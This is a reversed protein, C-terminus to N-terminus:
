FSVNVGLLVTRPEPYSGPNQEPGYGLVETATWLNTLTAYLRLSQMSLAKAVKKPFNYGIQVNRLRVFSADQYGVATMYAPVQLINPAPAENSPNNPTWYNRRVGNRKGTMDGGNDFTTLYSNYRTGGYSIYLDASLDFGKYYLGTSLSGIWKPDRYMIVRDTDDPVGDGNADKVKIAGPEADPMHSSAIEEGEQWIGDFAYDYYVNMPEGIFWKNNVDNKPLGNEDLSGDIRVIENKNRAFTMNVNWEFDKTKVPILNLTLEVGRNNVRGVNVLQSGYGTSQSLTKNVLLDTTDTNYLEVSGGIRGDFFGFDVGLNTSTSTEWKLNPNPMTTDPLYGVSPITGFEYMYKDTLGLTTYPSIGQNGVQGYSLRLKLNSVWEASKMFEEESVRWAFSASPFFGYKNSAGFVSSGDMRVAATFLYRDKYNYRVRALSSLMKRESLQFSPVGHEIASGIANFSLDDNSFGTGTISLQKWTIYNVSQMLTADIKHDDGITTSYNLINEVLYDFYDSHSVTAKGQTNRGTTHEVGLYSGSDVNRESLSTNLRYSLGDAIKWDAFLNILLRDTQSRNDSNNINWLPNYHSEGAETVDKRLTVGDEEYVKALPPMTVFTNFSGDASQKWARSFSLNAGLSIKKTLKHDINLRGSVKEFGSNHVM